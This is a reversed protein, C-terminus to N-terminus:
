FCTTTLVTDTGPNEIGFEAVEGTVVVGEHRDEAVVVQLSPLFRLFLTRIPRGQLNPENMILM